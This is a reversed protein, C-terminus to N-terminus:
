SEIFFFSITVKTKNQKAVVWLCISFDWFGTKKLLDVSSRSSTSPSRSFKSSESTTLKYCCLLRRAKLITKMMLFKQMIRYTGGPSSNGSPKGRLTRCRSVSGKRLHQGRTFPCNPVFSQTRTKRWTQDGQKHLICFSSASVQDADTGSPLKRDWKRENKSCSTFDDRLHGKNSFHNPLRQIHEPTAAARLTCSALLCSCM